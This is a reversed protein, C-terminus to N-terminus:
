AGPSQLTWDAGTLSLEAGGAMLAQCLPDLPTMSHRYDKLYTLQDSWQTLIRLADELFTVVILFRGIAPLYSLSAIDAAEFTNRGWCRYTSRLRMRCLPIVSPKLPEGITNLWDEIKSTQERIADLPSPDNTADASGPGAFQNSLGLNYGATSRIQAMKGLARTRGTVLFLLPRCTPPQPSNTSLFLNLKHSKRNGRDPCAPALNRFHFTTGILNLAVM